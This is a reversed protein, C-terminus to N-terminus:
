SHPKNDAFNWSISFRRRSANSRVCNEIYKASTSALFSDLFLMISLYFTHLSFLFPSCFEVTLVPSSVMQNGSHNGSYVSARYVTPFLKINCCCCCGLFFCYIACFLDFADRWYIVNWRFFSLVSSLVTSNVFKQAITGLSIRFFSSIPYVISFIRWFCFNEMNERRKKTGLSFTNSINKIYTTCMIESTGPHDFAYSSCSSLIVVFHACREVFPFSYMLSSIHHLHIFFWILLTFLTHCFHCCCCCDVHITLKQQQQQIRSYNLSLHQFCGKINAYLSHRIQDFYLYSLRTSLKFSIM